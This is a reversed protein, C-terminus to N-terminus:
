LTPSWPGYNFKGRGSITTQLSKFGSKNGGETCKTMLRLGTKNAALAMASYCYAHVSDNDMIIVRLCHTLSVSFTFQLVCSNM